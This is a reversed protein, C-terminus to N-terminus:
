KYTGMRYSETNSGAVLGHQLYPLLLFPVQELLFPTKASLPQCGFMNRYIVYKRPIPLWQTKTLLTPNLPEDQTKDLLKQVPTSHRLIAEQPKALCGPSGALCLVNWKLCISWISVPPWFWEFRWWANMNSLWRCKCWCNCVEVLNYPDQQRLDTCIKIKKQCAVVQPQDSDQALKPCKLGSAKVMLISRFKHGFDRTLWLQTQGVTPCRRPFNLYQGNGQTLIFVLGIYNSPLVANAFRGYDYCLSTMYRWADLFFNSIICAFVFM